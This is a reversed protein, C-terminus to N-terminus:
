AREQNGPDSFTQNRLAPFEDVEVPRSFVYGQARDCKLEQLAQVIQWDEPGEAVVTLNLEHCLAIVASVIAHHAQQDLMDHVFSRDIKVESVAFQRLHSMSSYGVGFDDISCTVGMALLRAIVMGVRDPESIMCTETMELRLDEALGGHAALALAVKACLDTELLDVASVNVSLCTPMGKSRLEAALRIAEDLVFETLTVVLGAQELLPVFLAPSLEGLEPHRWRVLVEAGVVEGSQLNVQPQLVVRLEESGKRRFDRIILLNEPDPDMSERYEMWSRGSRSAFAMATEAQRLIEGVDGGQLPCQALGITFRPELEMGDVVISQDDLLGEALAVKDQVLLAFVGRGMYCLAAFGKRRLRSAVEAILNEGTAFGLSCIFDDIESLKAVMLVHVNGKREARLLHTRVRSVFEPRTPLGTLRDHYEWHLMEMEVRSKRLRANELQWSLRRVVARLRWSYAYIMLFLLGLLMGGLVLWGSYRQWYGPRNWEIEKRWHEYIDYYRGTSVVLGLQQQLWAHLEPQQRSVAFVYPRPWLPPGLLHVPLSERAITRNTVPQPLLAFDAQNDLVAQLAARFDERIVPQVDVSGARLADAAYGGDELAVRRGQLADLDPVGESGERGYIGHTVFYFPTTFLFDRAREPSAFLAVVDVEGSRLGALADPWDMQIHKAERGGQAAMARGLEVVFGQPPGEDEQWEFPPYNDDGAFRIPASDAAQAGPGGVM